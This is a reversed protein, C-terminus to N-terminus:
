GPKNHTNGRFLGSIVEAVPPGCSLEKPTSYLKFYHILVALNHKVEARSPPNVNADSGEISGKPTEKSCERGISLSQRMEEVRALYPDYCDGTKGFIYGKCFLRM